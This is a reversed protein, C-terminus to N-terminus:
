LVGGSNLGAFSDTIKLIAPGGLVVFLPPFIFLMLPIAMLAPLRAAKEEAKLMRENRFEAALVRLSQAIPTGYKESQRLSNVVAQVMVLDTRDSLNELAKQRNPLFSLEVATLELEAAMESCTERTERAIRKLAADLSLGADACIVLLDLADPLAKSLVAKRKDTKNRVIIAPLYYGSAVAILAALFSQFLSIDSVRVIFLFFFAGIGLIAACLIRLYFFYLVADLGRYGARALKNVIEKHQEGDDLRMKEVIRSISKMGVFNDRRKPDKIEMVKSVLKERRQGLIRLNKAAKDREVLAFWFAVTALAAAVAAGLVTIDEMSLSFLNKAMDMIDAM